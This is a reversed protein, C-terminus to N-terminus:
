INNSIDSDNEEKITILKNIENNKQERKQIFKFFEERKEELEKKLRYDKSAKDLFQRIEKYVQQNVNVLKEDNKDKIGFHMKIVKISNYDNEELMKVATEKDMNTQSLVVNLIQKEKDDLINEIEKRNYRKDKELILDILLERKSKNEGM